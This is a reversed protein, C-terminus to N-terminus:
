EAVGLVELQFELEDIAASHGAASALYKAALLYEGEIIAEIAKRKETDLLNQHHKIGSTISAEM